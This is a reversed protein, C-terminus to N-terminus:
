PPWHPPNSTHVLRGTADGSPAVSHTTGDLASPSSTAAGNSPSPRRPLALLGITAPSTLTGTVARCIWVADILDRRRPDLVDVLLSLLGDDTLM